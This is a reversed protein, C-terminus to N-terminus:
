SKTLEDSIVKYEEKTLNLIKLPKEKPKQKKEITKKWLNNTHNFPRQATEDTM